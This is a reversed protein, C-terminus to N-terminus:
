RHGDGEVQRGNRLWAIEKVPHGLVACAFAAPRDLDVTQRSPTVRTELPSRVTLEVQWSHPLSQQQQQQQQQQQRNASKTIINTSTLVLELRFTQSRDRVFSFRIIIAYIRIIVIM